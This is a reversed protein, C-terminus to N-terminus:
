IYMHPPLQEPQRSKMRKFGSEIHSLEIKGPSHTSIWSIETMLVLTEIDRGYHALSREYSTFLKVLDQKPPLNYHTMRRQFMTVLDEISYAKIEIQPLFRSELGPQHSILNKEILDKYGSFIVMIEGPHETIFNNITTLCEFGFDRDSGNFITYAEDVFLVGGLAQELIALTKIATGGIHDSVLGQRDTAIFKGGPVKVNKNLIAKACELTDLSEFFQKITDGYQDPNQSIRRAYKNRLDHLNDRTKNLCNHILIKDLEDLPRTITKASITGSAIFLEGVAKALTTKGVGPPGSFILNMLSKDHGMKRRYLNIMAYEYIQKKVGDLGILSNIKNFAKNIGNHLAPDALELIREKISSTM